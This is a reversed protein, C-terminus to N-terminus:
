LIDEVTGKDIANAVREANNCSKNYICYPKGEIGKVIPAEVVGEGYMRAFNRADECVSVMPCKYEKM